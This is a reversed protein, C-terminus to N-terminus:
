KTIKQKWVYGWQHCKACYDRFDGHMSHCKTCTLTPFHNTHPNAKYGSNKTKEKMETFSGHCKICKDGMTDAEDDDYAQHCDRCALGANKHSNGLSGKKYLSQFKEAGDGASIYLEKTDSIRINGDKDTSHCSECTDADQNDALHQAHVKISLARSKQGHCTFCDDFKMKKAHDKPLINAPSEHCEACKFSIKAASASFPALIAAFIIILIYGYIKKM